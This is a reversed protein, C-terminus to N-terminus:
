AREGAAVAAAGGEVGAPATPEAPRTRVVFDRVRDIASRMEEDPPVTKAYKVFDRVEDRMPTRHARMSALIETTTQEVANFEFRREIYRKLVESLAYYYRKVQGAALWERWPLADLAALAQEWPPLANAEIERRRRFRRWARAALWVLAAALALAAPVIWLWLNPFTEAPKLDHIDKMDKPLVSAITVRASDSRLTDLKAGSRVLFLFVPLRQPGARFAALGLRHVVAGPRAREAKSPKTLVFVGLSDAFPGVVQQADAGTVTLVLDFRDGVTLRRPAEVKTVLAPRAAAAGAALAALLAAAPVLRALFPTARM